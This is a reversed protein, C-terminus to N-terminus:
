TIGFVDGGKRYDANGTIYKGEKLLACVISGGNRKLKHGLAKLGDVIQQLTGYEYEVRMPFLQHHIRPADVTEKINDGFWLTRMIAQAVSTTIKSGGAAGIVMKVDGYNDTLISPAMSSLPRKGPEMKNNPSGALGYYNMFHPFSFDNMISNLVIGTRKSTIGAGFYINVSSTVSVADGNTALVSIHATGHDEKPFSTAGYHRPDSSTSSDVIKNRIEKAYEKSNLLNLVKSINVFNPDGLDTRKAYAYKFAEITRHYTIVTNQADMLNTRTFGYGELINLIFGLLVGSGPPPSSYLHTNGFSFFAPEQWEVQYQELDEATIIGGAEEIDKVIIKSLFGDYFDDAGNSAIIKLTECLRRPIIKSGAEKLSGNKHLFWERFNSENITLTNSSSLAWHQHNSMHYGNECLIITPDILQQWALKGFKKHAERYGRLEGPVGVAFPGRSTKSVDQYMHNRAKLPATERANLSYAKKDKRIYVTMLFGGGLGMSQMNVMGNCFMTAITADVASGNKLLIDKGIEACIPGDACVAAKEFFHMKSASPPLAKFPNLPVLKSDDNENEKADINSIGNAYYLLIIISLVLSVIAGRPIEYQPETEFDCTESQNDRDETASDLVHSSDSSDEQTDNLELSSDSSDEKRTQM